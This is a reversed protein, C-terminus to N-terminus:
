KWPHQQGNWGKWGIWYAVSGPVATPHLLTTQPCQSSPCVELTSYVITVNLFTIKQFFRFFFFWCCVLPTLMVAFSM